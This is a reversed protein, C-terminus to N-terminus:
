VGVVPKVPGSLKMTVTVSLPVGGREPVTEVGIMHQGSEEGVTLTDYVDGKLEIGLDAIIRSAWIFATNGGKMDTAGRGYVRGNRVEGGFPDVTWNPITEKAVPVTDSHGNFM